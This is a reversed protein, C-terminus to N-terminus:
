RSVRASDVVAQVAPTHKEFYHTEAAVYLLAYLADDRLFASVSGRKTPEESSTVKLDFALGRNGDVNMPRLNSTEVLAGSGYFRSLTTQVLEQLENPLMEKRFTPYALAKDSSKFLTQEHKIPGILILQDLRMGDRTWISGPAHIHMTSVGPAANWSADSATVSMGAVQQAGPTVPSFQTSVCGALALLILPAFLKTAPM